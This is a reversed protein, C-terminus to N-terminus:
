STRDPDFGTFLEVAAFFEDTEDLEGAGDRFADVYNSEDYGPHAQKWAEVRRLWEAQSVMRTTVPPFTRM